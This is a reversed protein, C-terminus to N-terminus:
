PKKKIKRKKKLKVASDDLEDPEDRLPFEFKGRLVCRKGGPYCKTKRLRCYDQGVKYKCDWM